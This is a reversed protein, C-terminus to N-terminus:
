GHFVAIPFCDANRIRTGARTLIWQEGNNSFVFEGIFTDGPMLDPGVLPSDLEAYKRRATQKVVSYSRRLAKCVTTGLMRNIGKDLEVPTLWPPVDPAVYSIPAPTTTPMSEGLLVAVNAQFTPWYGENMMIDPCHHRNPDNQNFDWHRKVKSVPIRLTRCIEGALIEANRRATAKNADRNVCLECSIGSMNGPGDGDAAQWTVETVPIAQYIAVDDVMFHFSVQIASQQHLWKCHWAAGTGPSTNATEHQVWYYPKELLIGPRNNRQTVPILDVVLPVPLQIKTALGAVSYFPM